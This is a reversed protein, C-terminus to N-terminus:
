CLTQGKMIYILSMLKHTWGVPKEVSTLGKKAKKEVKKANFIMSKCPNRLHSM